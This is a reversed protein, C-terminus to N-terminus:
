IKRKRRLEIQLREVMGRKDYVSASEGQCVTLLLAETLVMSQHLTLVLACIKLLGMVYESNSCILICLYAGLFISDYKNGIILNRRLISRFTSLGDGLASFELYVEYV